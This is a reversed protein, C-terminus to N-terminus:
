TWFSPLSTSCTADLIINRDTLWPYFDTNLYSYHYQLTQRQYWPTRGTDASHYRWRTCGTLALSVFGALPEIDALHIWWDLSDVETGPKQRLTPLYIQKLYTSGSDGLVEAPRDQNLLHKSQTIRLYGAPRSWQASAIKKKIDIEIGSYTNSDPNLYGFNPVDQKVQQSSERTEPHGQGTPQYQFRSTCPVANIFGLTWSYSYASPIKTIETKEKKLIM